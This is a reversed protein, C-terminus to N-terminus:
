PHLVGIRRRRVALWLSIIMDSYGPDFRQRCGGTPGDDLAVSDPDDVLKAAQRHWGLRGVPLALQVGDGISQFRAFVDILDLIQGQFRLLVARRDPAARRQPLRCRYQRRHLRLVNLPIRVIEKDKSIPVFM